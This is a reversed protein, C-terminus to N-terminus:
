LVKKRTKITVRTLDNGGVVKELTQSYPLILVYRFLRDCFPVARAYDKFLIEESPKLAHHLTLEYVHLKGCKNIEFCEGM